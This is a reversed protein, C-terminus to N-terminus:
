EQDSGNGSKSSRKKTSKGGGKKDSSNKDSEANSDSGSSKKSKKKSEKAAEAEHKSIAEAILAHYTVSVPVTTKGTTWTSLCSSFDKWLGAGAFASDCADCCFRLRLAANNARRYHTSFSSSQECASEVLANFCEEWKEKARTVAQRAANTVAVGLGAANILQKALRRVAVHKKVLQQHSPHFIVDWQQDVRSNGLSPVARGEKAPDKKKDKTARSRSSGHTAVSGRGDLGALPDDEDEDDEADVENEDDDIDLEDDDAADDAADDDDEEAADLEDEVAGLPGLQQRSRPRKSQQKAARLKAVEDEIAIQRRLLDKIVRSEKTLESVLNSLTDGERLKEFVEEPLKDVLKKLKNIERRLHANDVKDEISAQIDEFRKDIQPMVNEKMYTRIRGRVVNDSSANEVDEVRESLKTVQATDAKGRQAIELREIRRVLQQELSALDNQAVAIQPLSPMSKATKSSWLSELKSLRAKVGALEEMLEHPDQQDVKAKLTGVLSSLERLRSLCHEVLQSQSKQSAGIDAIAAAQLTAKASLDSVQKTAQEAIQRELDSHSAAQQQYRQISRELTAIHETMQALSEANENSVMTYLKMLDRERQADQEQSAIEVLHQARQECYEYCQRAYEVVLAKFQPAVQYLAAAIQERLIQNLNTKCQDFITLVQRFVREDQTTMLVSLLTDAAQDAEPRPVLELGQARRQDADRSAELLVGGRYEVVAWESDAHEPAGAAAAAGDMAAENSVCSHVDDESKTDVHAEPAPQKLRVRRRQREAITSISTTRLKSSKVLSEISEGRAAFTQDRADKSKASRHPLDGAPM